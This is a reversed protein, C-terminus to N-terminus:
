SVAINSMRKVLAPKVEFHASNHLIHFLSDVDFAWGDLYLKLMEEKTYLGMHRNNKFGPHVVNMPINIM